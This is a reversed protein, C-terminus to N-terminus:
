LFIEMTKYNDIKPNIIKWSHYYETYSGGIDSPCSNSKDQVIFGRQELDEKM